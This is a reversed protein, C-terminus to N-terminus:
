PRGIRKSRLPAHCHPETAARWRSFPRSAFLPASISGLQKCWIRNTTGTLWFAREHWLWWVPVTYPRDNRRLTALVGIHPQRLFEELVDEAM